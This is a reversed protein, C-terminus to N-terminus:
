YIDELEKLEELTQYSNNYFLRNVFHFANNIDFNNDVNWSYNLLCGDVNWKFENFHNEIFHIDCKVSLQYMDWNENKHELIFECDKLNINVNCVNFGSPRENGLYLKNFNIHSISQYDIKDIYNYETLFDYLLQLFNYGISNNVDLNLTFWNSNLSRIFYENRCLNSINWKKQIYKRLQIFNEKTLNENLSIM